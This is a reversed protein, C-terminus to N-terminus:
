RDFRTLELLRDVRRAWTHERLFLRVEETPFQTSASELAARVFADADHAITVGPLGELDPLATAVVPREMALYEFVKLPSVAATLRGPEFPILCVDSAALIGPIAERPVAGHALINGARPLRRSGAPGILHIRSEPCEAALRAVLDLDVWPGWLAGVYSFTPRGKEIPAAPTSPHFRTPDLANPLLEVARGSRTHLDRQLSRASAVLVDARAIIDSEAAPEYWGAGLDGDWEDIADYVIPGRRAATRAAEVLRPHPAEVLVLDATREFGAEDLHQADVNSIAPRRLRPWPFIPLVWRWEITFGRRHLEAALQAPRSGGGTDEPPVLSLVHVIGRSADTIAELDFPSARLRREPMLRLLARRGLDLRDGRRGDLREDLWADVKAQRYLATKLRHSLRKLAAPAPPSM